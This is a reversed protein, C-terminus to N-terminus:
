GAEARSMAAGFLGAILGRCRSLKRTQQPSYDVRARYASRTYCCLSCRIPERSVQRREQGLPLHQSTSGIFLRPVVEALVIHGQTDVTNSRLLVILSLQVAPCCFLGTAPAIVDRLCAISMPLPTTISM